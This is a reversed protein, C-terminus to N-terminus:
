SKVAAHRLIYPERGISCDFDFKVLPWQVPTLNRETDHPLTWTLGRLQRGHGMVRGNM